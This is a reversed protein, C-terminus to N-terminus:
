FFGKATIEIYTIPDRENQEMIISTGDIVLANTDWYPLIGKKFDIDYLDSYEFNKVLWAKLYKKYSSIAANQISTNVPSSERQGTQIYRMSPFKKLDTTIDTENTTANKLCDAGSTNTSMTAAYNFVLKGNPRLLAALKNLHAANWRFSTTVAFDVTILDFQRVSGEALQTLFNMDTLDAKIFHSDSLDGETALCLLRDVYFIEPNQEELEGFIFHGRQSPYAGLTLIKPSGITEQLITRIGELQVELLQAEKFTKQAHLPDQTTFNQVEETAAFLSISLTITTILHKM